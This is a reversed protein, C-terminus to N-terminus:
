RKAAVSDRPEEKCPLLMSRGERSKGKGELLRRKLRPKAADRLAPMRAQEEKYPRLM